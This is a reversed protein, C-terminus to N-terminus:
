RPSAKLSTDEEVKPHCTWSCLSKKVLPSCSLQSILFLCRCFFMRVLRVLWISINQHQTTTFMAGVADCWSWPSDLGLHLRQKWIFCRKEALHRIIILLRAEYLWFYLFSASPAATHFRRCSLGWQGPDLLLDDQVLGSGTNELSATTVNPFCWALCSRMKGWFFGGGRQKM